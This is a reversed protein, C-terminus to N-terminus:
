PVRPKFNPEYSPDYQGSFQNMKPHLTCTFEEPLGYSSSTATFGNWVICHQVVDDITKQSGSQSGSFYALATLSMFALALCLCGIAKGTEAMM